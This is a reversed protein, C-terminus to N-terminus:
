SNNERSPRFAPGLRNLYICFSRFFRIPGIASDFLEHLPLFCGALSFQEGAPQQAHKPIGHNSRFKERREICELWQAM